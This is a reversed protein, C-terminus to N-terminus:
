VCCQAAFFSIKLESSFFMMVSKIARIQFFIASSIIGLAFVSEAFLLKNTTEIVHGCKESMYPKLYVWIGM